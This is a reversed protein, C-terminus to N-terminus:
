AGKRRPFQNDTSPFDLCVEAKGPGSPGISIDTVLRDDPPCTSSSRRRRVAAIAAGTLLTWPTLLAAAALARGATM